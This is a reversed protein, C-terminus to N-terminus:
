HRVERPVRAWSRTRGRVLFPGAHFALASSAALAPSGIVARSPSTPAMRPATAPSVPAYPLPPSTGRYELTPSPDSVPGIRTPCQVHPGPVSVPGEPLPARPTPTHPASGPCATMFRFCASHPASASSESRSHRVASATVAMAGLRFGVWRAKDLWKRGRTLAPSCERHGGHRGVPFGGM